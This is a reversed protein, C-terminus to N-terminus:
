IQQIKYSACYPTKCPSTSENNETWECADSVQIKNWLTVM